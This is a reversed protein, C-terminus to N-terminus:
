IMSVQVSKPFEMQMGIEQQFTEMKARQNAGKRGSHPNKKRRGRM